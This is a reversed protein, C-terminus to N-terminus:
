VLYSVAIASFGIGGIPILPAALGEGSSIDSGGRGKQGFM